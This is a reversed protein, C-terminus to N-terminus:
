YSNQCTQYINLIIKVLINWSYNNIARDRANSSTRQWLGNDNLFLGIATFIAESDTPSFLRGTDTTIVDPIGGVNSGICPTGSAMAEVLVAGQGEETSPLIFLKSRRMLGAVESQSQPGLFSVHGQLGNERVYTELVERLVGEGVILLKYDPWKIKVKQMAKLLHIVGKREILSGVYLLLKERNEPGAYPFKRIDIGTPIVRIRDSPIGIGQSAHALAKSVAIIHGANNLAIRVPLRLLLNGATKFIDSGHITVVYPCHHLPRTLYAALGALAWNAHIIDHGKAYKAAGLCLAGFFPLLALKYTFGKEWASPIGAADAQLVEYKEPLYRMRFIELGDIVEHEASGPQHLTIIRV